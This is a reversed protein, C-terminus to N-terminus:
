GGGGGYMERLMCRLCGLEDYRGGATVLAGEDDHRAADERAFEGIAVKDFARAFSHWHDAVLLGTRARM